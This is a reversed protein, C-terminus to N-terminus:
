EKRGQPEKRLTEWALKAEAVPTLDIVALRIMRQVVPAKDTDTIIATVVAALRLRITRSAVPVIKGIAVNHTNVM